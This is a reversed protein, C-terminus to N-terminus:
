REIEEATEESIIDSVGAPIKETLTKRRRM